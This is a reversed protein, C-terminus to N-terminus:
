QLERPWEKRPRWYGEPSFRPNPHYSLGDDHEPRAQIPLFWGLKSTGLVMEWNKRASGLWWINGEKNVRGWESDWARRTRWIRLPHFLGFEGTLASRERAKFQAVGMEEITTMNLMILRTHAVLLSSTFLAFLAALGVVVVVQADISYSSANAPLALALVDAVLVFVLYLTSWQLFNYFFKYNRAGVCSGVWPCHHDMKLVVAACHKCRHSRYPRLLGERTDYRYDTTLIPVMPPARNILITPRAARYDKPPEPFHLHSLQERTSTSRQRVLAQAPRTIDGEASLRSQCDQGNDCLGTAKEPDLTNNALGGTAVAKAAAFAPGLAGAKPHRSVMEETPDKTIESQQNDQHERQSDVVRHAQTASALGYDQRIKEAESSPPAVREHRDFDYGEVQVLPADETVPPDTKPVCEKAYGPGVFVVKAYSWVFMLFLLHYIILYIVGQARRGDYMDGTQRVMKISVRVVTVYYSYGLIAIVLGVAFKRTLWPDPGERKQRDAEIERVHQRIGILKPRQRAQSVQQKEEDQRQVKVQCDLM